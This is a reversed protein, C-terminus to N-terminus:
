PLRVTGTFGSEFISVQLSITECRNRSGQEGGAAGGGAGGHAGRAPWM